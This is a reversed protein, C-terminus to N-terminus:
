LNIEIIINAGDELAKSEILLFDSMGCRVLIKHIKQAYSIKSLDPDLLVAYRIKNCKEENLNNERLITIIKDLSLLRHINVTPCSVRRIEPVFLIKCETLAHSYTVKNITKRPVLGGFIASFM